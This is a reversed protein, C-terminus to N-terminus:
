PKATQKKRSNVVNLRCRTFNLNLNHEGYKNQKKQKKNLVKMQVRLSIHFASTGLYQRRTKMKAEQNYLYCPSLFGRHAQQGVCKHTSLNKPNVWFISELSALLKQHIKRLVYMSVLPEANFLLHQGAKLPM